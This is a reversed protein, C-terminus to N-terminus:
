VGAPQSGLEVVVRNKWQHAHVRLLLAARTVLIALEASSGICAVPAVFGIVIGRVIGIMATGAKGGGAVCAVLCCIWVPILGLEIVAREEWQHAHVGTLGAGRAMFIALILSRRGSAGAAVECIVIRRVIGIMTTGSKGSGAVCAMLCCIWVPMLGLEIVVREEWQHAHMGTLRAGSAVFASLIRSRRSGAGATMQCIVVGGCIGIMAGGAEWGRAVRAM